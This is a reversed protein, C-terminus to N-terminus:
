MIDCKDRNMKRLKSLTQPAIGLFSAIYYSKVIDFINPHDKILQKYQSNVNKNMLSLVRRYTTAYWDNHVMNRGLKEWKKDIGFLLDLDKISIVFFQSDELIEFTLLSGQQEYYSVSDDMFLNIRNVHENNFYLQWTLDKGTDSIFYSRALGSRIYWVESFIDGAYHTIMGKKVTKSHFKSCVYDWEKNTININKELEIRLNIM